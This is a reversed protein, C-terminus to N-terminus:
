IYIQNFYLYDMIHKRELLKYNDLHIYKTIYETDTPCLNMLETFLTISEMQLAEIITHITHITNMTHIRSEYKNVFNNIFHKINHQYYYDMSDIIFDKFEFYSKWYHIFDTFSLDCFKISLTYSNESHTSLEIEQTNTYSLRSWLKIIGIFLEIVNNYKYSETLFTYTLKSYECVDLVKSLEPILQKDNHFKNNLWRFLMINCKDVTIIPNEITNYDKLLCNPRTIYVNSFPPLKPIFPFNPNSLPYSSYDYSNCDAYLRLLTKSTCDIIKILMSTKYHKYHNSENLMQIITIIQEENIDCAVQILEISSIITTFTDNCHQILHENTNKKENTKENTISTGVFGELEPNYKYSPDILIVVNNIHLTMNQYQTLSSIVDPSFQKLPENYLTKLFTTYEHNHHKHEQTEPIIHISKSIKSGICLHYININIDQQTNNNIPLTQLYLIFEEVTEVLM